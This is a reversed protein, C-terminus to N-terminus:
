RLSRTAEIVDEISFPYLDRLEKAENISIGADLLEREFINKAKRRKMSWQLLWNPIKVMLGFAKM